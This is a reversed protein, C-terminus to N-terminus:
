IEGSGVPEELIVKTGPHNHRYVCVVEVFDGLIKVYGPCGDTQSAECIWVQQGNPLEKVYQYLFANDYVFTLNRGFQALLFPVRRKCKQNRITGERVVSKKHQHPGSSLQVQQDNLKVPCQTKSCSWVCGGTPGAPKPRVFQFGQYYLVAKRRSQKTLAPSAASAAGTKSTRGRPVVATASKIMTLKPLKSSSAEAHIEAPQQQQQRETAEAISQQIFIRPSRRAYHELSFGCFSDNSQGSSSPIEVVELEALGPEVALEPMKVDETEFKTGAAFIDSVDKLLVDVEPERVSAQLTDKREFDSGVVLASRKRRIYEDNSQCQKKYHYFSEIKERCGSCVMSNFDHLFSVHIALCDFIRSMLLIQDEGPPFLPRMDAGAMQLCLRCRFDDGVSTSSSPRSNLHM